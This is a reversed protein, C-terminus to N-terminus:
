PAPVEFLDEERVTAAHLRSWDSTKAAEAADLLAGDYSESEGACGSPTQATPIGPMWRQVVWKFPAEHGTIRVGYRVVKPACRDDLQAQAVETTM